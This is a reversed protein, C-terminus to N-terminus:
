YRRKRKISKDLMKVSEMMMGGAAITGVMPLKGAMRGMGTAASSSGAENAVNAGIALAAGTAGITLGRRLHKKMKMKM